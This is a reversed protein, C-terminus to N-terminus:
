LYHNPIFYTFITYAHTDTHTNTCTYTHIFTHTQINLIPFATGLNSIFGQVLNVTTSKDELYMLMFVVELDTVSNAM